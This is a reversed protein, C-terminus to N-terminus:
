VTFGALDPLVGGREGHSEPGGQSRHAFKPSGRVLSPGAGATSACRTTAATRFYLAGEM